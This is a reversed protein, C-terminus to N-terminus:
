IRYSMIVFSRVASPLEVGGLKSPRAKKSPLVANEGGEAGRAEAPRWVRTGSEPFNAEEVFKQHFSFSSASSSSSCSSSRSEGDEETM